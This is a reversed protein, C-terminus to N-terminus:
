INLSHLVLELDWQQVYVANPSFNPRDAFSQEKQTFLVSVAEWSCLLFLISYHKLLVMPDDTFVVGFGTRVLTVLSHVAPYSM